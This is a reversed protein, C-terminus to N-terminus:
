SSALVAVGHTWLEEVAAQLNALREGENSGLGLYGLRV